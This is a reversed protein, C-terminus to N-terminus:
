GGSEFEGRLVSPEEVEVSGTGAGLDVAKRVIEDFAMSLYSCVNTLGFMEADVSALMVDKGLATLQELTVM